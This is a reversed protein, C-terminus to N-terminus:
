MLIKRLLIMAILSGRKKGEEFHALATECRQASSVEPVVSNMEARDAFCSEKQFSVQQRQQDMRMAVVDGASCKHFGALTTWQSTRNAM